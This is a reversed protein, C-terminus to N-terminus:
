CSNVPGHRTNGRCLNSTAHDSNQSEIRRTMEDVEEGEGLDSDVATYCRVCVTVTVIFPVHKSPSHHAAFILVQWM